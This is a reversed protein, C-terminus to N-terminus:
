PGAGSGGLRAELYNAMAACWALVLRADHLDARYESATNSHRAGCKNTFNYMKKFLAKMEPHLGVMSDIAEMHGSLGCDKGHFRKAVSEVLKVSESISADPDPRAPDMHALAREIHDSSNGPIGSARAIEGREIKSRRPRFRGGSLVFMSQNVALARSVSEEFKKVRSPDKKVGCLAEVLEYVRHPESGAIESFRGRLAQCIDKWNFFFALQEGELDHAMLRAWKVWIWRLAIKDSIWHDYVANWLDIELDATMIAQPGEKPIIGFRVGFREEPERGAGDPSPSAREDADRNESRSGKEQGPKADHGRNGHAQEHSVHINCYVCLYGHQLTDIIMTSGCQPCKYPNKDM